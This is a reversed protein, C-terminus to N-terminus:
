AEVAAVLRTRADDESTTQTIRSTSSSSRRSPRSASGDGYALCQGHLCTVPEGRRELNQEFEALLRSKGIGPEGILTVLQLGRDVLARGFVDEILRLERERGVLPRDFRRKHGAAQRDVHRLRWVRLASSKGKVALEFPEAVIADRVLVYTEDAILIEGPEAGQELRAATNMVDGLVVDDDAAVIVEGTCVGM